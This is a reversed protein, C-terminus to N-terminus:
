RMIRTSPAPSATGPSGTGTQSGTSDTEDEEEPEEKKIIAKITKYPINWVLFYNIGPSFKKGADGFGPFYVPRMDKGTGTHLLLRLRITWGISFNKFVETRVGPTAEIFHGWRTAPAVSSSVSGWYNDHSFSPVEYTFLSLGYRLGLGGYYKGISADAKMLNFDIGARMFAGKNLYSYNYQSYKFDLYGAELVVAREENLDVSIFGEASMIDKDTFYMAPGVVDIGAKIKLPFLVTDQAFGSFSIILLSIFFASIRRM